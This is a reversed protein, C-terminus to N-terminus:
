TIQLSSGLKVSLIHLETIYASKILLLFKKRDNLNSWTLKNQLNLRGKVHMRVRATCCPAEALFEGSFMKEKYYVELGLFPFMKQLKTLSLQYFWEWYQDFFLGVFQIFGYWFYSCFFGAIMFFVFLEVFISFLPFNFLFFLLFFIM